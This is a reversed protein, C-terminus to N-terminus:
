PIYVRWLGAVGTSSYLIHHDRDIVNWIGGDRMMPSKMPVLAGPSDESTTYYPQYPDTGPYAYPFGASVYVSTGDGVIGAASNPSKPLLSWSDGDKSYLVGNASGQFFGGNRARYLQGPLHGPSYSAVRSWTKGHDNSRWMGVDGAGFLWTDSDLFDIEAPWAGGIWSRDGPLLTWSAGADKTEAICGAELCPAHFSALLHLHDSPDISIKMVFGSYPTTKRFADSFSQQWDVGGNTSKFLGMEGYGNCTYLVEPDVPDIVLSWNRGSSIKDANAGTNAKFWTAGCNTTKYIGQTDTGVYLVRTDKPNIVLAKLGFNSGLRTPSANDVQPPSIDEWVGVQGSGGDSPCAFVVHPPGGDEKKSGGAGGASGGAGSMGGTGATGVMGGSGSGARDSGGFSEAAGAGGAPEATSGGGTVSGASGPTEEGDEAGSSPDHSGCGLLTLAASVAGAFRKMM